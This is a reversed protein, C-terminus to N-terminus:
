YKISIVKDDLHQEMKQFVKNLMQTLSAKATRQNDKSKSIIYINFCTKVTLRLSKGNVNCSTVGTLLAKIIQLQVAESVTPEFCSCITSIVRDIIKRDDDPANKWESTPIYQDGVYGFAMLKQLFDIATAVMKPIKTQCALEFPKYYKFPNNKLDETLQESNFNKM